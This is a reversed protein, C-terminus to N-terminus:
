PRGGPRMHLQEPSRSISFEAAACYINAVAYSVTKINPLLLNYQM